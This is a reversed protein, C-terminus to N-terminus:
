ELLRWPDDAGLSCGGKKTGLGTKQCKQVTIKVFMDAEIQEAQVLEKPLTVIICDGVKRTKVLYERM